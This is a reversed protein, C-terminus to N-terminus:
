VKTNYFSTQCDSCGQCGEYQANSLPYMTKPGCGLENAGCLVMSAITQVCINQATRLQPYTNIYGLSYLGQGVCSGGPQGFVYQGHCPPRRQNFGSINQLASRNKECQTPCKSMNNNIMAFIFPL